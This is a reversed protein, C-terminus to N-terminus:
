LEDLEVLIKIWIRRSIELTLIGEVLKPFNENNFHTMLFYGKKYGGM